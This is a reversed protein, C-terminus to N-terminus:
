PCWPGRVGLKRCALDGSGGAPGIKRAAHHRKLLWGQTRAQKAENRRTTEEQRRHKQKRTRLKNKTALSPRHPGQPPQSHRGPPMTPVSSTVPSYRLPVILPQHNSSVSAGGKHFCTNEVRWSGRERVGWPSGGL